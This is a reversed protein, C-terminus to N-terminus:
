NTPNDLMQECVPMTNGARDLMGKALVSVGLTAIAAGGHLAAKGPDVGASPKALTGTILIYPYFIEGPNIRLANTPTSNFNLNIKETKLDITGRAVVAIKQTSFALAPATNMLGDTIEMKGAICNFQTVLTDKSKPMIVSFVQELIFTDLVSLDVNEINGGKSGIYLSGNLAGALEQLNGGKGSAHFDIDFAPIQDLKDATVGSINLITEKASLDIKVDASHAQDPNISISAKLKGRPAELAFQSINLSGAKQEADLVVNTISDQLYRLEAINLRINLDSAAFVDLPLPTAPILRDPKNEAGPEKDAKKGRPKLFPRIDILESTANLRIDPRPGKLSVDLEGNLRSQGLSVALGRLTFERADGKFDATIDLPQSPLPEGNVRGLKSIDQSLIKFAIELNDDVEGALSFKLNGINSDFQGLNLLDGRKSGAANIQFAAKEAEFFDMKPLFNRIDDGRVDVNFDINNSSKFPWGLELDVRARAKLTEFRFGKINLKNNSLMIQASSEFEDTPLGPEGKKVLLENLNPGKASFRIDFDSRLDPQKGIMADLSLSTNGIRGKVADLKWHSKDVGFVGTAQYPQGPVFIDLSDGIAKFKNLAYLNEGNIQFNLATGALQDDLKILGDANLRIAEIEFAADQLRIGEELVQVGGSLEYPSDPVEMNEVLRGMMDAFHNGSLKLDINTGIGDKSLAIFGGLELRQEEITLLVGREVVLGKEQLELRANLNFPKGPLLDFGFASVVSNANNGDLHLNLKSGIYGPPEGLTGSLMANGLSTKLEAELLEVGDPSVDLKGYVSFPGTALGKIGLLEHFQEIEDGSISLKVRSAELTPFETLLADLMLKTGGVNLTLDRVNLTGGTRKAQGKLSFPKDPWHEIGLVRTFAGLNPGSMAVKLDLDDFGVIDSSQASASLSVGGVKGNIEAEYGDSVQAGSARLSFGGGGLDDIGLMATIEDIDPGQMDLNFRPSKPELLSDIYADGKLALEGFHGAAQYSIDRGDLVNTYPGVTHTYEVPRNNLDGNLTTHLMGDTQQRHSLSDITFVNKVDTKGNRYEIAANRLQIDNFVVIAGGADNESPQSSKNASIWNGRGQKDTELNLQLNDVSVNELLVIDKFVSATNLALKLHGIAILDEHTAWDPGSVQVNRASVEILRGTKVELEGNLSVPYGAVNSLYREVPGKIIRPYYLVVAVGIALAIILLLLWKFLKKM